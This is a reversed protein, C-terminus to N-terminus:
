IGLTTYVVTMIACSVVILVIGTVVASTAALGVAAASNGSEIGRHCGSVAVLVGYVLAKFIGGFFDVLGISNLTQITYQYASVELMNLAVTMGGLIGLLDSYVCLLPMMIVLALMKPLVLFDMSDIGMTNLADIEENVRMTGLQAAFAAGTRGAMIIGTMIAGMERVVGVAVLDAVFIGAGFKQLQIVGVFALIVGVLFSILSVIPFAEAGTEQVTLWLDQARYNAKGRVFRGLSLMVAGVFSLISQAEDALSLSFEGARELVNFRKPTRRAGEREEVATALKLFGEAGQPLGRGDFAVRATQAAAHLKVLVAILASDWLEVGSSEFSIGPVSGSEIERILGDAVSLDAGLRWDGALSVRWGEVGEQIQFTPSVSTM